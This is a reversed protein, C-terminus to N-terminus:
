LATGDTANTPDAGRKQRLGVGDDWFRVSGVLYPNTYDGPQVPGNINGDVYLDGQVRVIETGVRANGGFVAWNSNIWTKVAAAGANWLKFDATGDNAESLQGVIVRSHDALQLWIAKSTNAFLRLATRLADTALAYISVCADAMGATDTYYTSPGVVALDRSPIQDIAKAYAMTTGTSRLFTNAAGITDPVDSLAGITKGTLWTDARGSTLYQLHDDAGLGTLQAHVTVGVAGSVSVGTSTCVWVSGNWTFGLASKPAIATDAVIAANTTSALISFNQTSSPSNVIFLEQGKFLGPTLSSTSAGSATVVYERVVLLELCNNIDVSFKNAVITPTISRYSSSYANVGDVIVTPFINAMVASLAAIASDVGDTDAPATDSSISYTAAIALPTGTDSWVLATWANSGAIVRAGIIKANNTAATNYGIMWSKTATIQSFDIRPNDDNLAANGRLDYVRRNTTTGRLVYRNDQGNMTANALSVAGNTYTTIIVSGSLDFQLGAVDNRAYIGIYSGDYHYNKVLHRKGTGGLILGAGGGEHRCSVISHGSGWAQIGGFATNNGQYTNYTRVTDFVFSQSSPHTDFAAASCNHGQCDALMGGYPAGYTFPNSPLPSTVDSTYVHRMDHGHSALVITYESNNDKIGYGTIGLATINNLGREFDCGIFLAHVCGQILLVANSTDRGVVREFVPNVVGGVRIGLWKRDQSFNLGPDGSITINSILVKKNDKYVAVRVNTTYTNRLRATTYIDNGVIAGIYVVEGNFGTAGSILDDSVVKLLMGAVVAHGAPLTIKACDTFNGQGAFDYSATNDIASVNYIAAPSCIIDVFPEGGLDADCLLGGNGQIRLYDHADLDAVVQAKIRYFSDFQLPAGSLLAANIAQQIPGTNDVESTVGDENDTEGDLSVGGYDEPRIVVGGGADGTSTKQTWRGPTSSRDAAFSGSSPSVNQISCEWLGGTEVDVVVDGVDYQTSNKWTGVIGNLKVFQSIASDIIQWNEDEAVGYGTVAYNILNLKLNPTRGRSVAM